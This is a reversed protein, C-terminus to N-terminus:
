ADPDIKQLPGRRNTPLHGLEILGKGGIVAGHTDDGWFQHFCAPVEIDFDNGIGLQDGQPPLGPMEPCRDPFMGTVDIRLFAGTAVVTCFNARDEKWIFEVFAEILSLRNIPRIRLGDGIRIEDGLPTGAGALVGARRLRTGLPINSQDLRAAVFFGEIHHFLIIRKRGRDPADAIMRTFLFAISPFEVGRYRDTSQLTKGGVPDIFVSFFQLLLSDCTV